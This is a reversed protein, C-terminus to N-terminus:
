RGSGADCAAAPSIARMEPTLIGSLLRASVMGGLAGFTLPTAFVFIQAILGAAFVAHLNGTSSRTALVGLGLGIVGSAVAGWGVRRQGRTVAWVGASLAFIGLVVPVVPSRAALPPIASLFAVLGLVSGVVGITRPRLSWEGGRWPAAHNTM